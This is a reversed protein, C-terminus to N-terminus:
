PSVRGPQKKPAAGFTEEIRERVPKGIGLLISIAACLGELGLAQWISHRRVKVDLDSGKDGGTIAKAFASEQERGGVAQSYEGAGQQVQRQLRDYEAGSTVGAKALENLRNDARVMKNRFAMAAPGAEQNIVMQHKDKAFARISANVSIWSGFATLAFVVAMTMTMKATMTGSRIYDFAASYCVNIAIIFAAATLTAKVPDIQFGFDAKLHNVQTAILILLAISLVAKMNM